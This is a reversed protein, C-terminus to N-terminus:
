PLHVKLHIYPQVTYNASFTENYLKCSGLVTHNSGRLSPVTVARVGLVRALPLSRREMIRTLLKPGAIGVEVITAIGSSPSVASAGM